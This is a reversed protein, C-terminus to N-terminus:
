VQCYRTPFANAMPGPPFVAALSQRMPDSDERAIRDALAAAALVDGALMEIETIRANAVGLEGKLRTVEGEATDARTNADALEGTLRTVDGSATDLMTQITDANDNADTLEGTLRTVDGSATDLMTQIADANDNSTM